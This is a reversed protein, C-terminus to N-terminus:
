QIEVEIDVPKLERVFTVDLNECSDLETYDCEEKCVMKSSEPFEFPLEVAGDLYNGKRSVKGAIGLVQSAISWAFEVRRHSQSSLDFNYELIQYLTPIYQSSNRLAYQHIEFLLGRTLVRLDLKPKGKPKTGVILDLGIEECICYGSNEDAVNGNFASLEEDSMSDETDPDELCDRFTPQQGLQSNVTLPVRKKLWVKSKSSSSPKVMVLKHIWYWQQIAKSDNSETNQLDLDFNHELIDNVTERVTGCLYKVHSYIEFLGGKTLSTLDLKRDAPRQDTSWLDLGIKRCYPHPDSEGQQTKASAAPDLKGKQEGFMRGTQFDGTGDVMIFSELFKCPSDLFEVSHRAPHNQLCRVKSSMYVVFYRQRQEDQYLIHFNNELIECLFSHVSKKMATAFKLIECLMSNTFLQVCVKQKCGSGVNFDLGMARCSAFQDTVRSSRLIQRSRLARRIWLRQKPTIVNQDLNKDASFLESVETLATNKHHGDFLKSDSVNIQPQVSSVFVEEEEEKIVVALATEETTASTKGEAATLTEESEVWREEVTVQTEEASTGFTEEETGSTAEEARSTEVDSMMEMEFDVPCMYSLDNDQLFETGKSERDRLASRRKKPLALRELEEYDQEPNKRKQYLKKRKQSLSLFPEKLFVDREEEVQCASKREIIKNIHFRLLAKNLEHGFNLKVLDYVIGPLTGCTVRSFNLLELMVGKTLLDVHLKKKPTNEPQIFLTVGLEKCCPFAEGTIKSRPRGRKRLFLEEGIGEHDESTQSNKSGASLVLIDFTKDRYSGRRESGTEASREDILEPLIFTEKWRDPKLKVQSWMLKTKNHVRRRYDSYKADDMADLGLDFNLELVEFLFLAESRTVCRAFDWLELMVGNTLLSVDLKKKELSANYELGLQVSEPFPVESKQYRVGHQIRRQWISETIRDM